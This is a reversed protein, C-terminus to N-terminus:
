FQCDPLFLSGVILSVLTLKDSVITLHPNQHINKLIDVLVLLLKGNSCKAAAMMLTLCRM